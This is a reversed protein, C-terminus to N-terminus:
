LPSPESPYRVGRQPLLSIVVPHACNLGQLCAELPLAKVALPSPGRPFRGAKVPSRRGRAAQLHPEYALGCETPHPTNRKSQLTLPSPRHAKAVKLSTVQRNVRILPVPQLHNMTPLSTKKRMRMMKQKLIKLMLSSTDRRNKQSVCESRVAGQQVSIFANMFIVFTDVCLVFLIWCYCKVILNM